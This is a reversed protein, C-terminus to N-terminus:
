AEAYGALVPVLAGARREAADRSCDDLLREHAMRTIAAIVRAYSDDGQHLPGEAEWAQHLADTRAQPTLGIDLKGDSVLAALVDRGTRVPKGFMREARIPKSRLIGWRKGFVEFTPQMAKMHAGLNSVLAAVNGKHVVRFSAGVGEEVIIYNLCGNWQAGSSGNISGGGADNSRFRPGISTIDGASFDQIRSAHYKADVTLVTTGSDYGVEGRYGKGGFTGIIADLVEDADFSAYHESVVAFVQPKNEVHRMRLVAVGPDARLLSRTVHEAREGPPLSLLYRAAGGFLPVGPIVVDNALQGQDRAYVASPLDGSVRALLAAYARPELDLPGHGPVIFRGMPDVSLDRINVSLDFRREARIMDRVQEAGGELTPQEEWTRYATRLNQYGADIVSAGVEYGGETRMNPNTAYNGSPRALGISSLLEDDARCREQAVISVHGPATLRAGDQETGRELRGEAGGAVVAAVPSFKVDYATTSRTITLPSLPNLDALTAKSVNCTAQAVPEDKAACWDYMETVYTDDNTYFSVNGQTHDADADFYGVLAARYVPSPPLPSAIAGGNVNVVVPPASVGYATNDCPAPAHISQMAPTVVPPGDKPPGTLTGTFGADAYAKMAADSNDFTAVHGNTDTFTFM